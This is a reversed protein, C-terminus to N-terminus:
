APLFIHFTSGNGPESEAQITGSHNEVIKKCLALGIGSGGYIDQSNLRQFIDFIKDALEQPFGIGNDKVFIHRGEAWIAIHPARESFKLANGILNRFLQHFQSGIGRVAPLTTVDIIAKKEAVVLEFEHVVEKVVQSLEVNTISHEGRSLRSYDLVDKILKSMRNSSHKIKDLYGNLKTVDLEEALGEELLEAFIHIKRLPEQLDHSAIFAFQELEYNSLALRVNTEALERTREQVTAELEKQFLERGESIIRAAEKQETINRAIKSAGIIQGERDRVPSISLSIDLQRGDKTMRKTEFHDVREGRKLRNLIDPEEELRDEP